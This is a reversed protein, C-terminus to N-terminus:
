LCASSLIFAPTERREEFYVSDVEEDKPAKYIDNLIKKKKEDDYYIKKQKSLFVDDYEIFKKVDNNFNIQYPNKNRNKKPPNKTTNMDM